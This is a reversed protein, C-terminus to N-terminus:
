GIYRSSFKIFSLVRSNTLYCHHKNGLMGDNHMKVIIYEQQDSPYVLIRPLHSSDERAYFAYFPLAQHQSANVVGRITERSYWPTASYQQHTCDHYIIHVYEDLDPQNIQQSQINLMWTGTFNVEDSPNVELMAEWYRTINPFQSHSLYTEGGPSKMTVDLYNM